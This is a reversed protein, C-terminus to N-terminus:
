LPMQPTENEDPDVTADEDQGADPSVTQAPTTDEPDFTVEPTVEDPNETPLSIGVTEEVTEQPAETTEVPAETGPASEAASTDPTSEGTPNASTRGEMYVIAGVAAAVLILLVIILAILKNRM